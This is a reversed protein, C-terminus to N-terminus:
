PNQCSHCPAGAISRRDFAFENKAMDVCSPLCFTRNGGFLVSLM